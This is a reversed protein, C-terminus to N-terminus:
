NELCHPFCFYVVSFLFFLPYCGESMDDMADHFDDAQQNSDSELSNLADDLNADEGWSSVDDMSASSGQRSRVCFNTKLIAM